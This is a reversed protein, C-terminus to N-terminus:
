KYLTAAKVENFPEFYRSEEICLGTCITEVGGSLKYWIRGDDNGLLSHRSISVVTARVHAGFANFTVMEGLNFEQRQKM